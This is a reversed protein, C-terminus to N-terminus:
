RSPVLVLRGFVEGADLMRHAVVAEELDIVDSVVAKLEGRCAAAFLDETATLRDRDSVTAASFTGFSMSKQFAKFLETGFDAPPEGAVAGVAVM